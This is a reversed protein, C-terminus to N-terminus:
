QKYAARGRLSEISDGDDEDSLGEDEDVIVNHRYNRRVVFDDEEDEVRRDRARDVM